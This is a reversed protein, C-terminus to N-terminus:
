KRAEARAVRWSEAAGRCMGVLLMLAPVLQAVVILACLGLFAWVWLGSTDGRAVEAAWAPTVAALWLATAMRTTTKANM